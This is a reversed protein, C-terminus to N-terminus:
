RHVKENNAEYAFLVALQHKTILFARPLRISGHAKSYGRRSRSEWATRDAGAPKVETNPIPTVEVSGPATAVLDNAMQDNKM